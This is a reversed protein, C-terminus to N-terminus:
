PPYYLTDPCSMRLGYGEGPQMDGITNIFFAPIYTNGNNAKIILLCSSISDLATVADMPTTRLYSIMSWGESLVIPTTAPDAQTCGMILTTNNSAKLRYGQEVKWDGITNINFFPVFVKGLKNKVLQIESIIDSFVDNMDPDDPIIYSSIINWGSNITIVQSDCPTQAALLNSLLLGVIMMKIPKM